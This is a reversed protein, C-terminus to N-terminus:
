CKKIWRKAKMEFRPLTGESVSVVTPRFLLEDRITEAIRDALRTAGIGPVPEVEIALDTMTQSSDITVRFESVENFRRLISEIASPYVNNGRIQIMDDTRGLIGGDLRLGEPSHRVRVLDGTRYRALPNGLRGLNTLVLEGIAGPNVAKTSQPDVVEAVYGDVVLLSDGDDVTEVAVPGVETLGYHDFVRANWVSEIRSRVSPIMGGPEGAVILARVPTSALDISEKVAVEALHFAYTPTCLLVTIGHDLMFRLRAVSSLGGVPFVALGQRAASEFATWFGLFPGFSFAFMLRDDSRIGIHKYILDWRSLLWQWSEATDLWCLPRGTTTGSTQHLRTYRVIQQTLNSGYPANQAQDAVLDAKTTFPLQTLEARHSDGLKRRYFASKQLADFLLQIRSDIM